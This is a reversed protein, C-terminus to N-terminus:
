KENNTNVCCMKKKMRRKGKLKICWQVYPWRWKTRICQLLERLLVAILFFFSYLFNKKATTAITEKTKNGASLLCFHLLFYKDDEQQSHWWFMFSNFWEVKFCNTLKHGNLWEHMSQHCVIEVQNMTFIFENGKSQIFHHLM